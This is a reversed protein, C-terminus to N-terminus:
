SFYAKIDTGYLRGIRERAEPTLLARSSPWPGNQAEDRTFRRTYLDSEDLPHQQEPRNHWHLEDCWSL